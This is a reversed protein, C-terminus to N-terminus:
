ATLVADKGNIKIRYTTDLYKVYITTEETSTITLSYDTVSYYQKGEATVVDAAYNFGFNFTIENTSSYAYRITIMLDTPTVVIEDGPDTAGEVPAGSSDVKTFTRTTAGTKDTTETITTIETTEQMVNYDIYTVQKIETQSTVAAVPDIPTGPDNGNVLTMDESVYKAQYNTNNTTLTVKKDTRTYNILGSFSSTLSLDISDLANIPQSDNVIFAAGLPYDYSYTDTVIHNVIATRNIEQANASIDLYLLYAGDKNTVSGLAYEGDNVPIEYYYMAKEIVSPNTIWSLDFVQQYQQPLNESYTGDSYLYIYDANQVATNKYIKSIEKISIIDHPSTAERTIKHLSFFSTNGPFYSGSFFNIYGKEQLNFDISDQPLQYNEITEKNVTVQDATVINSASIASQMFHLGYINNSGKLVTGLSKRSNKYKQLGLTEYNTKTTNTLSSHVSTNNLNYDDSIRVVGNSTPTRTMVELQNDNYTNSNLAVNIDSMQYQSVRIDGSKYPYISSKYTTGSVVYGTNTNKPLGNEDVNLPFYTGHTSFGNLETSTVTDYVIAESTTQTGTLATSTESFSWTTGDSVIYYTRSSFWYSLTISISNNMVWSINPDTTSISLSYGSYRSGTYSLYYDTGNVNTLIDGDVVRWVSANASSTPATYNTGNYTLYRNSPDNYFYGTVVERRATKTTVNKEFNEQGYLYLYTKNESAEDYRSFTYRGKGPNASDYYQKFDGTYNTSSETRGGSIDITITQTEVGRSLSTSSDFINYIRNYMSAMDVSGGWGTAEGSEEKIFSSTTKSPLQMNVEDVNITAKYNATCHGYISYDSLNATLTPKYATSSEKVNLSSNIVGINDVLGNVYGAVLGILTSNLSSKVLINDLKINKVGIVSSSYTAQSLASDIDGVVGFLGVINVGTLQETLLSPKNVIDDAGLTNSVKLNSIKYNAGDFNGIFPYNTTGIPPLVQNTMDLNAELKFYNQEYVGNDVQNMLGLYQLWALNYLHVPSNLIYPDALTGGGRAFFSSATKGVGSNIDMSNSYDFWSLSSSMISGVLLAASAVFMSISKFKLKM